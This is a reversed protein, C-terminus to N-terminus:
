TNGIVNLINLTKLGKNKVYKLHSVFSLKRDFIVGLFISKPGSVATPIFPSRKEPLYASLRQSQSDFTHQFCYFFCCCVIFRRSVLALPVFPLRDRVLRSKYKNDFM